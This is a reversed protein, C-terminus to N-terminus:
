KRRHLFNCREGYKCYQNTFFTSCEKTKYKCNQNNNQRLEHRGHAFKCKMGYPCSGKEIYKKCLESKEKFEIKEYSCSDSSCSEDTSADKAFTSDFRSRSDAKKSVKTSM